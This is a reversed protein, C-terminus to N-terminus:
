VCWRSFEIDGTKLVEKALESSMPHNNAIMFLVRRYLEDELSHAVEDDQKLKNIGGVIFKVEDLTSLTLITNELIRRLKLQAQYDM